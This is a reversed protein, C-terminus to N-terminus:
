REARDDTHKGGSVADRLRALVSRPRSPPRATAAGPPRREEQATDQEVRWPEPIVGPVPSGAMHTVPKDHM